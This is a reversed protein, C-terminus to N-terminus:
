IVKGDTEPPKDNGYNGGTWLSSIGPPDGASTSPAAYAMRIPLAFVDLPRRLNEVSVIPERFYVTQTCFLRYYYRTKRARPLILTFLNVQPVSPGHPFMNDSASNMISQMGDTPLWGIRGRMGTQFFGLPSSGPAYVNSITESAGETPPLIVREQIHGTGVPRNTGYEAIEYRPVNTVAGPWLDQHLQGIQWVRPSASRRVGSQLMFKFWRQDLLMDNYIADQITESMGSISTFIDEGNTIRILGPSLQDRPDVTNEGESYSLGTPDSPLTSAPVLKISVPGLKYYKFAAFHPTLRALVEPGGADFQFIQMSDTDSSIDFFTQFKMKISRTMNARRKYRKYRVM